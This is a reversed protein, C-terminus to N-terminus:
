AQRVATITQCHVILNFWQAPSGGTMSSDTGGDPLGRTTLPADLWDRVAPPSTARLDLAFQDLHVNGFPREFWDPAPPTLPITEGPELAVDGHDFTFGISLYREGYWNRLYSGASPLSM